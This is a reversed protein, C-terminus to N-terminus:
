IGLKKVAKPHYEWISSTDKVNYRIMLKQPLGVVFNLMTKQHNTQHIRLIKKEEKQIYTREEWGLQLYAVQPIERNSPTLRKIKRKEWILKRGETTNQKYCHFVKKMPQLRKPCIEIM